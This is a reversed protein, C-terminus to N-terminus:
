LDEALLGSAVETMWPTTREIIEADVGLARMQPPAERLRRALERLKPLLLERPVYDEVSSLVDRWDPAGGAGAESRWHTRRKILEPDLFMPAFDYLPSLAVEGDDRKLLAINRGHNDPNGLALCVADRMVLESIDAARDDVSEALTACVAEFALKAGGEVEGLLSYASEVGHRRVVGAECERDFRPVFLAGSEHDLAEGCRLGLWRALELYPAENAL